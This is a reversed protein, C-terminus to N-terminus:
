RGKKGEDYNKNKNENRDNLSEEMKDPFTDDICKAGKERIKKMRTM